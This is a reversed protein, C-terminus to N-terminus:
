MGNKGILNSHYKQEIIIDKSRENELKKLLELFEEKAKQVGDPPGEIRVVNNGSNENPVRIVVGHKNNLRTINDYKKGVIQAYYKPEVPMEECIMIQKLGVTINQLRERVKEVEDPPGDLAIKNDAEFKVHTNPYDGTIKSINAGKEGIMHRHLWSPVDIRITVVSNAKACVQSLAAGLKSEQGFLFITESPSDLKPVQVYVDFDRFIDHVTAGSKGKITFSLFRKLIHFLQSEKNLFQNNNRSIEKM